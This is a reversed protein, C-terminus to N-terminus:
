NTTKSHEHGDDDDDDDYADDFVNGLSGLDSQNSDHTMSDIPIQSLHSHNNHEQEVAAAIALAPSSPREREEEAEAQLARHVVAAM